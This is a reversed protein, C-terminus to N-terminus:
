QINGYTNVRTRATIGHAFMREANCQRETVIHKDGYAITTEEGIFISRYNRLREFYQDPGRAHIELHEPAYDDGIAIAITPLISEGPIEGPYSPSMEPPCSQSSDSSKRM